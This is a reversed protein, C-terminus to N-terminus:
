QGGRDTVPVRSPQTGPLSHPMPVHLSPSPQQLIDNNKISSLETLVIISFLSIGNRILKINM